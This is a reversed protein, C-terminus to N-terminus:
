RATGVLLHNRTEAGSPGKIKMMLTEESNIQSPYLSQTRPSLSFRLLVSLPSAILKVRFALALSCGRQPPNAVASLESNVCKVSSDGGQANQMLLGAREEDAGDAAGGAHCSVVISPGRVWRQASSAFCHGSNFAWRM